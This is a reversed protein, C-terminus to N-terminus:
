RFLLSADGYSYFRYDSRIAEDYIRRVNEYGVFATVLALLTSRPLHFNTVLGDCVRIDVGPRLFLDTSRTGPEFPNDRRAEAEMARASTTGVAIVRGGASRCTDIAEALADPITYQESHMDHDELRDDRVPRFTGPGVTLTLRARDIGREDLRKLLEPTFHLGATPAAVAGPKDAYVTQYRHEDEPDVPQRGEETRRNVIYPPLPVAGFRRLFQLPTEDWRVRVIARGAGVQEVTITPLSPRDPDSLEMGERLPRSSRTMCEFRIVGGGPAQWGRQASPGSLATVFLEVRGGTQKFVQLRAPVVRTDNFVLLDDARLYEDLRDFRSHEITRDDGRYVLLRSRDRRQAPDAAIRHEDLQYDYADVTHPDAEDAALKWFTPEENPPM